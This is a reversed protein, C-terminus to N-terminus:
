ADPTVELVHVETSSNLGQAGRWLRWRLVGRVRVASGPELRHVRAAIRRGSAVCGIVDIRVSSAHDVPVVRGRDVTVTLTTLIDGSPLELDVVRQGIRGHLEVHNM